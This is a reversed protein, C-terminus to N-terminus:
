SLSIVVDKLLEERHLYLPLYQKYLNKKVRDLVLNIEEETHNTLKNQLIDDVDAYSKLGIQDMDTKSIGLGDMPPLNIASTLASVKIYDNSYKYKELYYNALEYVETKYLDRIPGYDFLADGGITSFGLKYETLNDTGFVIGKNAKAADYLMIMRIRSKINGRRFKDDDCSSRFPCIDFLNKSVEDINISEYVDTFAYCTSLASGYENNPTTDIPMTLGIVKFKTRTENGEISNAVNNLICAVITSDIGGSIGIIGSKIGCDIVYSKIDEVIRDSIFKYKNFNKM